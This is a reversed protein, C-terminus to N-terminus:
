GRCRNVQESRPLCDFCADLHPDPPGMAEEMLRIREPVRLKEFEALPPLDVKCPTPRWASLLRKQEDLPRVVFAELPPLVEKESAIEADYWGPRMKVRNELRKLKVALARTTWTRSIRFASVIKPIM